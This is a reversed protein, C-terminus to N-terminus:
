SPWSLFLVLFFFYESGCFTTQMLLHAVALSKWFRIDIFALNSRAGGPISASLDSSGPCTRCRATTGSEWTIKRTGLKRAVSQRRGFWMYPLRLSTTNRARSPNTQPCGPFGKWHEAAQCAAFGIQLRVKMRMGNIWMCLLMEKKEGTFSFYGNAWCRPPLHKGVMCHQSKICPLQKWLFVEQSPSLRHWVAPDSKGSGLSSRHPPWVWAVAEWPPPSVAACLLNRSKLLQNLSYLCSNKKFKIKDQTM